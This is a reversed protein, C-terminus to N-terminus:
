DWGLLTYLFQLAGDIDVNWERLIETVRVVEEARLLEEFLSRARESSIREFFAQFESSNELKDNFLAVFEDTPLVARVEELCAVLGGLDGPDDNNPEISEFLEHLEHIVHDLDIDFEQLLYEKFEAWIQNEGVEHVLEHWEDSQLYIQIRQVEADNDIFNRLIVVIEDLPILNLFDRFDEKLSRGPPAATTFAALAVLLVTVKM